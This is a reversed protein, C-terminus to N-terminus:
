GAFQELCNDLCAELKERIRLARIRLANIPIQLQEALQKRNKIKANTNGQYYGIILQRNKEPLGEMCQELCQMQQELSLREVEREKVEHPDEAFHSALSFDEQPAYIKAKEEWYEQLVNRAIGYFYSAPDKTYIEVGETIRRAVRNITTDAQDEPIPCDRSEFFTILKRRITEYERAASERDSNLSALLKDFAEATLIWDKKLSSPTDV